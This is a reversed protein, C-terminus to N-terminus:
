FCDVSEICDKGLKWHLKVYRSLVFRLKMHFFLCLFFLVSCCCFCFLKLVIGSLLLVAPSIVMGSRLNYWLPTTIFALHYNCLFLCMSWHFRTSSGPLFLCMYLYWIKSSHTLFVSSFIYCRWSSTQMYFFALVDMSLVRCLLWILYNLSMLM